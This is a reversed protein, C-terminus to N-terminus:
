EHNDRLIKVEQECTSQLAEAYGECRKFESSAFWNRLEELSPKKEIFGFTKDIVDKLDEINKRDVASKLHIISGHTYVINDLARVFLAFIKKHHDADLKDQIDGNIKIVGRCVWSLPVYLTAARANKRDCFWYYASIIALMSGVIGIIANLWNISEGLAVGIETANWAMIVLPVDHYLVKAGRPKPVFNM